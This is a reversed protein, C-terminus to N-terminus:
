EEEKQEIGAMMDVVSDVVGEADGEADGESEETAAAIQEAEEDSAEIVAIKALPPLGSDARETIVIEHPLQAAPRMIKVTCGITGLKKVATSFGTDM